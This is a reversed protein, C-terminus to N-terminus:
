RATGPSTAAARVGAPVTQPPPDKARAKRITLTGERELRAGIGFLLGVAGWFIWSTGIRSVFANSFFNMVAVTCVMAILYNAFTQEWGSTARRITTALAVSRGLLYLYLLVAFPGTQFLLTLYDNHSSKGWTRHELYLSRHSELGVGLMWDLPSKEAFSALSFRWIRIRGSGLKDIASQGEIADITFFLVIDDFRDQLTLNTALIAVGLALAVATVVFRRELLLYALLFVALGIQATRSHSLYVCAAAGLFYATAAGRKWGRWHHVGVAALAAFCAMTQGQSSIDKYGGRLRNIGSAELEAMQGSALFYLSVVLPVVGVLGLAVVARRQWVRRRYMTTMVMLLVFPSIYRVFEGIGALPTPARAAGVLLLGSFAVMALLLPHREAQRFLLAVQAVLLATAMGSYAEMLNLGMLTDEVWWLMGILVEGAVLALLSPKPRAFFVAILTTGFAAFLQSTVPLAMVIYTLAILMATTAILLNTTPRGGIITSLAKVRTSYGSARPPPRPM